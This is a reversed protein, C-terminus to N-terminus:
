TIIPMKVYSKNASLQLEDRTETSKSFCKAVGVYGKKM